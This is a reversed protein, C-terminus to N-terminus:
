RISHKPKNLTKTQKPNQFLEDNSRTNATVIAMGKMVSERGVLNEVMAAAVVTVMTVEMAETDTTTDGAVAEM